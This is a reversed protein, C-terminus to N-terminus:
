SPVTFPYRAVSARRPGGPASAAPSHFRRGMFPAPKAALTRMDLGRSPADGNYGRGNMAPRDGGRSHEGNGQVAVNMNRLGARCAVVYINDYLPGVTRGVGSHNAPTRPYTREM